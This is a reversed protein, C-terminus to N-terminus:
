IKVFEEKRSQPIAGTILNWKFLLKSVPPQCGVCQDTNVANGWSKNGRGVSKEERGVSEIENGGGGGQRRSSGLDNWKGGGLTKVEQDQLFFIHNAIDM